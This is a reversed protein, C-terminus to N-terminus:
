YPFNKGKVGYRGKHVRYTRRPEPSCWLYLLLGAAVTIALPVAWALTQYLQAYDTTTM